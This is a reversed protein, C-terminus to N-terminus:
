RSAGTRTRPAWTVHVVELLSISPLLIDLRGEDVTAAVATGSVLLSVAQVERGEPVAISVSHPGVALTERMVGRMTFPNTLNVLAVSTEVVVDGNRNEHVAIDVLGPGSIRAVGDGGLAWTVARALLDRHDPQLTEWFLAGLNFAVYVTRGGGPVERTVVAPDRPTERAYVEEMPLDPYDPVFRFPVAVGDVGDEARVGVIGTGGVIRQAGRFPAHLPHEPGTLAVYNNKVPGRAPSTLHVGMVDALGFDTRRRGRGDALSTEFTTVLSGGRRVWADIRACDEDDLLEANGVVLVKFRDLDEDLIRGDNVFEFPIGAEVLVQYVGHGHADNDAYLSEVPQGARAAVHRTPDLVAVDATIKARSLVPEVRDHLTFADVVPQVWRTDHIEGKFKTFWPLAGQAFGDVIWTQMEAGSIVSDKWRHTPNEPGVSTILGVPRDRFVSRSRKGNRGASWPAEDGHRGQRDIFLMPYHEEVLGRELDQVAVSGLNPIFAVHPKLDKVARDWIGVLESLQQRRWGPYARWAPDDPDRAGRPLALGTDDFFAREAAESYSIGHGQWRNAFIADVDYDRVIERAVETTFERNYPGFPCTVYIGPFAWHEVPEGHEDLAAWEPHAALADAHIAHPDVRAMVAMDLSRSIDVFAGFPDTDGLQASRYHYPISTPYFAMYGGASICLANSRSRRMVDTWFDLDLNQPDDETFTLQTWRTARSWWTSTTDRLAPDM